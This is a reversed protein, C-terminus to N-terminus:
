RGGSGSAESGGFGLRFASLQRMRKGPVSFGNARGRLEKFLISAIDTSNLKRGEMEALSRDHSLALKVSTVVHWSGRELDNRKRPGSHRRDDGPLHTLQWWRRCRREDNEDLLQDRNYVV